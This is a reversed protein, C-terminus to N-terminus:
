LFRTSMEDLHIILGDFDEDEGLYDALERVYNIPVGYDESLQVLYDCRTASADGCYRHYPTTRWKAM